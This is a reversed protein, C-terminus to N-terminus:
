RGSEPRLPYDLFITLHYVKHYVRSFWRIDLNIATLWQLRAQRFIKQQVLSTFVKCMLVSLRFRFMISTFALWFQLGHLKQVRSFHFCHHISEPQRNTSRVFTKQCRRTPFLCCGTYQHSSAACLGIGNTSSSPTDCAYFKRKKGVQLYHGPELDRHRECM